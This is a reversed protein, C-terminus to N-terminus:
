NRNILKNYKHFVYRVLLEVHRKGFNIMRPSFLMGGVLPGLYVWNINIANSLKAYHEKLTKSENLYTRKFNCGVQLM